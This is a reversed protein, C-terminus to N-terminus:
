AIMNDPTRRYCVDLESTIGEAGHIIMASNEVLVVEVRHAAFLRILGEPDFLGRRSMAQPAARTEPALPRKFDEIRLAAFRNEEIREEVTKNLHERLLTLDIGSDSYVQYGGYFELPKPENLTM